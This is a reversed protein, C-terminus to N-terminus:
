GIPFNWQQASSGDCGQLEMPAGRYPGPTTVCYGTTNSVRSVLLDAGIGTNWNENSIWDCVWQEIPTGNAAGGRADLCLGNSRNVLHVKTGLPPVVAWQQLASGNCPEQVIAAGLASSGGAPQLCQGSEASVLQWIPDDAYAPSAVALGSATAMAAAFFLTILRRNRM